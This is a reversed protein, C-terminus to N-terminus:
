MEWRRDNKLWRYYQNIGDQLTISEKYGVSLLKHIDAQWYLPDGQRIKGSCTISKSSRLTNKIMNAIEIIKTQRGSAVNFIGTQESNYIYEIARAVDIAHIFDRSENGTGYLEVIEDTSNLFKTCLDFIVQKFLNQGYSSFIRLSIGQIGYIKSYEEVLLECMYKHYGYPSIPKCKTSEHIPLKNPNGYVAASSLFIFKCQPVYQRIVDLIYICLDVSNIFDERPNKISSQVDSAGACHILITPRFERVLGIFEENPLDLEYLFNEGCLDIAQKGKLLRGIGIISNNNKLFYNYINSGLFGGVGTVIFRENM